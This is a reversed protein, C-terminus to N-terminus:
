LVTRLREELGECRSLVARELQACLTLDADLEAVIAACSELNAALQRLGSRAVVNEDLPRGVPFRAVGPTGRVVRPQGPTPDPAQEAARLMRQADARQPTLERTRRLEDQVSSLMNTAVKTSVNLAALERSISESLAATQEVHRARKVGVMASAADNRQVRMGAVLESFRELRQLTQQNDRLQRALKLALGNQGAEVDDLAQLVSAQEQDLGADHDNPDGGRQAVDLRAIDPAAIEPEGDTSRIVAVQHAQALQWLAQVSLGLDAAAASLPISRASPLPRLGSQHPDSAPM